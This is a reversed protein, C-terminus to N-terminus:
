TLGVADQQERLRILRQRQTREIQRRELLTRRTQRLKKDQMAGAASFFQGFMERQAASQKFGM